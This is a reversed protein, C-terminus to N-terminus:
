VLNEFPIRYEKYNDPHLELVDVEPISNLPFLWSFAPKNNILGIVKLNFHVNANPHIRNIVERVFKLDAPFLETESPVKLVVDTVLPKIQKFESLNHLKRIRDLHYKILCEEKPGYTLINTLLNAVAVSIRVFAGLEGRDLELAYCIGKDTTDVRLKEDIVSFNHKHVIENRFKLLNAYLAFLYDNLYTESQFLPPYSLRTSTIIKIKESFKWPVDKLYGAKFNEELIWEFIMDLIKYSATFTLPSMADMVKGASEAGMVETVTNAIHAGAQKNILTITSINAGGEFIEQTKSLFDLLWLEYDIKEKLRSIATHNFMNM